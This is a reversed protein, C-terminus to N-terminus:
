PRPIGHEEHSIYDGWKLTAPMKGYPIAIGASWPIFTFHPPAIRGNKLLLEILVKPFNNLDM